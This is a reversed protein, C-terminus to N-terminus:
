EYATTRLNDCPRGKSFASGIHRVCKGFVIAAKGDQDENAHRGHGTTAIAAASAHEVYEGTVIWGRAAAHDHLIRFEDRPEQGQRNTSVRAYLAARM